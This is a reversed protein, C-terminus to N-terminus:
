HTEMWSNGIKYEGTLPVHVGLDKGAQEISWVASEGIERALREDPAEHQWEDHVDLLFAYDEGLRLLSGNLRDFHALKAHKMVIAGDSQLMDNLAGHETACKLIRGDLGELWGRKANRHCEDLLMKLAPMGALLQNRADRGLAMAAERSPLPQTTVGNELALRWDALVIIGLKKDGAGYLMAYTFTKQSDRFFLGTLKQWESHPDGTLLEHAFAGDDYKWLRNALMRLEIGSADAGVMVWGPRTPGFLSRCEAGYGGEIGYLIGKEKDAHVKPVQGLNPGSHSCRSTRTGTALVKGHIRGNRCKKLWAQTGEAVQGLRKEVLIYRLLLPIEPYPLPSLEAEGTKPLGNDTYGDEDPEWGYKRRLVHARQHPSAPNFEVFQIKTYAGGATYYVPWDCPNTKTNPKMKRDAVPVTYSADGSIAKVSQAFALTEPDDKKKLKDLGLKANQGPAPAWWGPFAIRLQDSLDAAQASLEATLKEAGEEDFGVGNRQQEGLLYSVESDVVVPDIPMIPWTPEAPKQTLRNFLLVNLRVDQRCYELMEPSFRKFFEVAGGEGYAEVQKPCRLRYGWAELSHQRLYRLPLRADRQRDNRTGYNRFKISREMLNSAYILQSGCLTDYLRGQRNQFFLYFKELVPIDFKAINHGILLDARMLYHAAAKKEDADVAVIEEDTDVDRIVICHIEAPLTTPDHSPFLM